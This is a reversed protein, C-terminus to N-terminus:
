ACRALKEIAGAKETEKGIVFFLEGTGTKYLYRSIVAMSGIQRANNKYGEQVFRAPEYSFDLSKATNFPIPSKDATVASIKLGSIEASKLIKKKYTLNLIVKDGEHKIVLVPNGPFTAPYAPFGDCICDSLSTKQCATMNAVLGDLNDKADQEGQPSLQEGRILPWVLRFVLFAGAIVVFIIVVMLLVKTLTYGEETM